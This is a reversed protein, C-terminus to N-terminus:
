AVGLEDLEKRIIEPLLDIVKQWTTVDLLLSVSGATIAVTERKAQNELQNFNDMANCLTNARRVDNRKMKSM